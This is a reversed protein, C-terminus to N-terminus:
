KQGSSIRATNANDARHRTWGTQLPSPGYVAYLADAYVTNHDRLGYVYFTGDNAVAAVGKMLAPPGWGLPQGDSGYSVQANDTEVLLKGDQLVAIGMTSSYAYQNAEWVLSGDAPNVARIGFSRELIYVTNDAAISPPGPDGTTAYSWLLNNSNNPDNYLALLSPPNTLPVFVRGQADIAMYGNLSVPAPQQYSWLTSFGTTVVDLDGNQKVIHLSDDPGFALGIISEDAEYSSKTIGGGSSNIVYISAKQDELPGPATGLYLEDTATGPISRLALAWGGGTQGDPIM